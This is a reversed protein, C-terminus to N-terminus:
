NDLPSPQSGMLRNLGTCKYTQTLGLEPNYVFIDHDRKMKHETLSSSLHNDPKNMNTSNNVM